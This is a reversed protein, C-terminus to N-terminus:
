RMYDMQLRAQLMRITRLALKIIQRDVLNLSAPVLRNLETAPGEGLIQQRLRLTQLYNYASVWGEYEAAPIGLQRGAQRLREVTSTCALGCRLAMIRAAEVVIATGSRKIDITERGDVTETALAGLWNLAVGAQLHQEVWQRLFRPNALSRALFDQRLADAWATPGHLVRLDFWIAAHLLDQPSGREIWGAGLRRWEDPTHCWAATSAMIGGRCLPYGCADLTDNVQRAFALWRPRAMDAQESMYILANDQDTAITQEQRGESGLAVWCFTLDGMDSAAQVVQVIRVTLQDNLDSLLRTLSEPATGQALLQVALSRISAAADRLDPVTNAQRILGGVHRLSHRQLSFLDRESVLKVVRGERLVPVHRIRQSNMLVAADELSRTEDLAQVPRSMVRCVPEDLSLGPLLVRGILDDRTLIGSLGGRDDTLLVSGLQQLHMAELAHQLTATEPLTLVTKDPVSSLPRELRVAQQHHLQLQQQLLRGSAQLLSLGLRTLHEALVTSVAMIQQVQSWPFCFYFSDESAVYRTRVPRGALLAGVPWLSGAELEFPQDEMGQPHGTVTGQRLWCLSQPVGDGSDLITSGPAAYCEQGSLVLAHLHAADMRAFPECAQLAQLWYTLLPNSPEM